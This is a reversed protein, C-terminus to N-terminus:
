RKLEIKIGNVGLEFNLGQTTGVLNIVVGSQNRM